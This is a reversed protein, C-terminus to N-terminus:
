RNGRREMRAQKIKFSLDVKYGVFDNEKKEEKRFRAIEADHAKKASLYKDCKSHCGLYRADCKKCPFETIM